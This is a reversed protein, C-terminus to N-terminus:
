YTQFYDVLERCLGAITTLTGSVDEIDNGPSPRILRPHFGPTNTIRYDIKTVEPSESFTWTLLPTGIKMTQGRPIRVTQALRPPADKVVITTSHTLPFFLTPVIIRHKDTNSLVHLTRMARGRPSRHYPQYREIFDRQKSTTGPIRNGVGNRYSKRSSAMPFYVQM